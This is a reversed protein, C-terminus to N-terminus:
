AYALSSLSSGALNPSGVNPAPKKNMMSYTMWNNALGSLNNGVGAAANGWANAGAIGAAGAANAAGIMNSGANGAYNSGAADVAGTATQGIGALSSLRGFRRDRDANFRNYANQYESSATNQGYDSLAKLTGGSQLGGKAAASRELAKQGEQMRFDYGPDTKMDAATFDRQFDSNGLGSLAGVGAQRWPENDARTQDYQQKQLDTARNAADAQLKAADQAAGSAKSAGYIQAGASALAVGGGVISAVIFAM